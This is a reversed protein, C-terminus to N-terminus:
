LRKSMSFTIEIPYKKKIKVFHLIYFNVKWASATKFITSFKKKREWLERKDRTITITPSHPLFSIFYRQNYALEKEWRSFSKWYCVFLSFPFFKWLWQFSSSPFPPFFFFNMEKNGLSIDHQQHFNSKESIGSPELFRNTKKQQKSNFVRLPKQSKLPIIFLFNTKTVTSQPFPHDNHFHIIM